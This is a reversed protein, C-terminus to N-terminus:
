CRFVLSQKWLANIAKSIQEGPIMIKDGENLGTLMKLITNDLTSGTKTRFEVGAITYEKPEAFNIENDNGGLVVQGQVPFAFLLVGFLLQLIKNM